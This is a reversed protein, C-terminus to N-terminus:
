AWGDYRKRRSLFITLIIGLFLGIFAIAGGYTLLQRKEKARLNQQKTQIADREAIAQDLQAQLQESQSTLDSNMSQLQPVQAQVDRLKQQTSALEEALNQHKVKLSQEQNIFKSEVWGQREKDDVIEFFGNNETGTVLKIETGANVSGVIRYNKGAGSHMFIYLDDSIYATSPAAHATKTILASSIFLLAVCLHKLM